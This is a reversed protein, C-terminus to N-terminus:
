WVFHDPMISNQCAHWPNGAEATSSPLPGPNGQFGAGFKQQHMLGQFFQGPFPGQGRSGGLSSPTPSPLLFFAYGGTVASPYTVEVEM